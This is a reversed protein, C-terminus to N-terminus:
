EGIDQLEKSVKDLEELFDAMPDEHHEQPENNEEQQHEDNGVRERPFLSTLYKQREKMGRLENSLDYRKAIESAEDLISMAILFFHVCTFYM